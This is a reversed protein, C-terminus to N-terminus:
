PALAPVIDTHVFDEGKFLLPARLAKALAYAFCDAYNLGARHRGRGFRAFADATLQALPLDVPTVQIRHEGLWGDLDERGAVGRGLAVIACELYNGTSMALRPSTALVRTLAAEEPERKAVAVFVSSDVVIM